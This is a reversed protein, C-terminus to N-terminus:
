LEGQGCPKASRLKASWNRRWKSALVNNREKRIRVVRNCIRCAEHRSRIGKKGM